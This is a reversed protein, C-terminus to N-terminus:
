GFIDFDEEDALAKLPSAKLLNKFTSKVIDGFFSDWNDEDDEDFMDLDGFFDNPDVSKNKDYADLFIKVDNLFGLFNSEYNNESLYGDFIKHGSTFIVSIAYNIPDSTKVGKRATKGDEKIIGKAMYEYSSRMIAYDRVVIKLEPESIKGNKNTDMATLIPRLIPIIFKELNEDFEDNGVGDRSIGRDGLNSLIDTFAEGLDVAGVPSLANVAEIIFMADSIINIIDGEDLDEIDNADNNDDILKEVSDLLDVVLAAVLLDAESTIEIDLDFDEGDEGFLDNLKNKLKAETETAANQNEPKVDGKLKEKLDETKETSEFIDKLDEKVEKLKAPNVEGNDDLVDGVKNAVSKTQTDDVKVMGAETLVNKGMNGMLKSLSDLDCGIVAILLIPIILFGIIKKRM